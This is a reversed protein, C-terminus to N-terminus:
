FPIIQYVQALTLGAPAVANSSKKKEGHKSSEKTPWLGKTRLAEIVVEQPCGGFCKVLLKGKEDSVSLSPTEDLHAPCHTLYGGGSKQGCKCGVAVCALAQAIQEATIV